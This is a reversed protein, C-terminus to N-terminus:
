WPAPANIMEKSVERALVAIFEEPAPKGKPFLDNQLKRAEPLNSAWAADIASQIEACIQERPKGTHLMLRELACLGSKEIYNMNYVEMNNIPNNYLGVMTQFQRIEGNVFIEVITSLLNKAKTRRFM